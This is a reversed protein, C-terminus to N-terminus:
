DLYNAGCLEMVGEPKSLSEFGHQRYLRHADSTVLMMRRLGQLEPHLMVARMLKHAIGMRRYDEIVFVDAIYAFTAYDSTVRAFGVQKTQYFAGFCLSNAISKEVIKRSIGKAWYSQGNLYNFITDLDLKSKNDSIEIDQLTLKDQLIINDQSSIYPKM